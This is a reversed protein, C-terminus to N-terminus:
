NIDEKLTIIIEQLPTNKGNRVYQVNKLTVDNKEDLM